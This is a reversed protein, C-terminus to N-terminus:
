KHAALWQEVDPKGLQKYGARAANALTKARERDRKTDWLVKALSFELEATTLPDGGDGRLRLARELYPLAEGPKKMGILAEGIGTLYFSLDFHDPGLEKETIALATRFEALADAYRDLGLYANALYGRSGATEIHDPGFVKQAIALARQHYPLGEKPRDLMDLVLGVNDLSVSTEPSDPPLRKERIALARLHIELAEALRNQHRRVIGLEDLSVAVDAHDHGLASELIEIATALKQAAPEYEGADELAQAITFLSKATEPHHPGYARSHVAYAREGLELALKTNGQRSALNSRAAYLLGLDISDPGLSHEILESAREFAKQAEPFKGELSLLQGENGLLQGELSEAGTLRRIAAKAHEIQRHGDEFRSQAIGVLFTLVILARARVLDDRGRDAAWMAKLVADEAAKPDRDLAFRDRALWLSAEAELPAYGEAQAAAVVRDLLEVAERLKGLRATTEGRVIEAHLQEIRQRQATDRPLQREALARADACTDLAPLKAVADVARSVMARDANAFAETLATAERMRDDLCWMRLDLVHASQEGRVRTAECAARHMAAWDGTFRDLSREVSHWADGAFPAGTALFKARLQQKRMPNWMQAVVADGGSCSESRAPSRTAAIVGGSAVAAVVAIGIAVSRRRKRTARDDLVGLLAAMSAFRQAPDIALGRMLVRAVNRPVRPSTPLVLPKTMAALLGEISTGSFPRRAYLAEHLTICFSFQDSRETASEGRLQEPSMYAPTGLMSGTLTLTLPKDTMPTAPQAGEDGLRVLGFDGVKAVGV